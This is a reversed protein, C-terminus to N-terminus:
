GNEAAAALINAVEWTEMPPYNLIMQAANQLAQRAGKEKLMVYEFSLLITNQFIKKSKGM